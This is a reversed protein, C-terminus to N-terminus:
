GKKKESRCKSVSLTKLFVSQGVKQGFISNPLFNCSLDIKQGFSNKLVFSNFRTSKPTVSPKLVFIGIQGVNQSLNAIKPLCFKLKPSVKFCVLM